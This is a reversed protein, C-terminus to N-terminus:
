RRPAPPAPPPPPTYPQAPDLLYKIVNDSVGLKKLELMEDTNLDFAKGNKKIRTIILDESFGAQFLKVVEEVTLRAPTSFTASDAPQAHLVPASVSAAALVLSPFLFLRAIM